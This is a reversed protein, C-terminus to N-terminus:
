IGRKENHDPIITDCRAVFTSAKTFGTKKAPDSASM